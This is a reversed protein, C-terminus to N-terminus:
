SCNRGRPGPKRECVTIGREDQSFRCAATLAGRLKTRARHLRIKATAVSCGLIEAIEANTLGELDHLMIVARYANPLDDIYEQVCTSMEKQEFVKDLRPTEQDLIELSPDSERVQEFPQSQVRSSVQRFRDYCLNTAIRYLWPSLKSQEKLTSLKEYARVFTEQLIDDAEAANRVLGMIYLRIRERYESFISAFNPESSQDM